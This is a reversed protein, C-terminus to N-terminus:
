VTKHRVMSEQLLGLSRLQNPDALIEHQSIVHGGLKSRVLQTEKASRQEPSLQQLPAPVELMRLELWNPLERCLLYM